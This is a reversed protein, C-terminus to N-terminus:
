EQKYIFVAGMEGRLYRSGKEDVRSMDTLFTMMSALLERDAFLRFNQQHTLFDLLLNGEESSEDYCKTIDVRFRSTRLEHKWLHKKAISAIEDTTYFTLGFNLRGLYKKRMKAFYSEDTQVLCMIVGNRKLEKRYCHVLTSEADLYYLSHIFHVFNFSNPQHNNNSYEQFTTPVWDFSLEALKKQSLPIDTVSAKFAELEHINPEVIRSLIEPKGQNLSSLYKSIIGLLVLDNQGDASGVGLVAYRPHGSEGNRRRSRLNNDSKKVADATNENVIQLIAQRATVHRLFVEFAKLYAVDSSLLSILPM